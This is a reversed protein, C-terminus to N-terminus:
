FDQVFCHTGTHRYVRVVAGKRSAAELRLNLQGVVVVPPVGEALVELQVLVCDVVAVIASSVTILFLSWKTSSLIRSETNKLVKLMLDYYIICFWDLFFYMCQSDTCRALRWTRPTRPTPSPRPRGSRDVQDFSKQLSSLKLGTWSSSQHMWFQHWKWHFQEFTKPFIRNVKTNLKFRSTHTQQQSPRHLRTVVECRYDLHVRSVGVSTHHKSHLQSWNTVIIKRGCTEAAAVGARLVLSFIITFPFM